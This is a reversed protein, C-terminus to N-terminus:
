FPRKQLVLFVSDEGEMETYRELELIHLGPPVLQRLVSETYQHFWLGSRQASGTGTWFSHLLIGAPSLKDRQHKLSDALEEPSLHILVKNSYIGNFRADIDMQAADVRELKALPHRQQYRKLFAPSLDSGTVEYHLRLLDLDKGPGMGLELVKSDDRLHRRFVEVLEEGDYGDAQRLYADVGDASDYFGM